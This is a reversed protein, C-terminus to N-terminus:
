RCKETPRTASPNGHKTWNGDACIWEDEPTFMRLSAIALIIAVILALLFFPLYHKFKKAFGVKSGSERTKLFHFVVSNLLMLGCTLYALLMAINAFEPNKDQLAMLIFMGIVLIVSFISISYRAATGAMYYDREDALVEKVKQRGLRILILGVAIAIVPAIYNELSIAVSISASLMIVIAIRYGQYQKSTM